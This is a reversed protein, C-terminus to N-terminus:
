SLSRAASGCSASLHPQPHLTSRPCLNPLPVVLDGDLPGWAQHCSRSTCPLSVARVVDRRSRPCCPLPAPTGSAIRRPVWTRVWVSAPAAPRHGVPHCLSVERPSLSPQGARPPRLPARCPAARKSGSDQGLMCMSHPLGVVSLLKKVQEPNLFLTVPTLNPLSAAVGSSPGSSRAEEGSAGQWGACGCGQAGRALSASGALARLPAETAM